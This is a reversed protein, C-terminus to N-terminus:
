HQFLVIFRQGSGPVVAGRTRVARVDVIVTDPPTVGAVVTLTPAATGDTGTILTDAVVGGPLFVTPATVAPDPSTIAYTVARGSLPSPPNTLRSDLRTTLPGSVAVGPAVTLVSDTALVLTDAAAVVSFTILESSLSGSTAQVLATGLSVGTLVGTAPDITANTAGAPSAATWVIPTAVSDGNKDLPRASLQISEGVELTDPGPVRVEIGVIGGEAEPLGSCGLAAALLVLGMRRKV